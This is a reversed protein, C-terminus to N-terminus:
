FIKQTPVTCRLCRPESCSLATGSIHQLTHASANKKKRLFHTSFYTHARLARYFILIDCRRPPFTRRLIVNERDSHALFAFPHTHKWFARFFRHLLMNRACFYTQITRQARLRLVRCLLVEGQQFVCKRLLFTKQPIQLNRLCLM